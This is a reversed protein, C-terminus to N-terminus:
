MDSEYGVASMAQGFHCLDPLFQWAVLSRRRYREMPNLQQICGCGYRILAAPRIPRALTVRRAAISCRGRISLWLSRTREQCRPSM